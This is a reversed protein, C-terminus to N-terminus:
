NSSNAQFLVAGVTGVLVLALAADFATYSMLTVIDLGPIKLMMVAGAVGALGLSVALEIAVATRFVRGFGRQHIRWARMEGVLAVIGAAFVLGGIVPHHSDLWFRTPLVFAMLRPRVALTLAGVGTAAGALWPLVRLRRATEGLGWGLLFQGALVVVACALVILLAYVVPKLYAERWAGIMARSGSLGLLKYQPEMVPNAQADFPYKVVSAFFFYSSPHHCDTCGTAGLAAGAPYVDHNYKHVNGYPSAEWLRKEMVRYETGSTYIRDNMVWVVHKGDMPYGTQELMNTVEAILADIEQPRNVETVGDGNDDKLMALQPYNKPNKRHAAWMKYIDSMKPQMLGPQGEVEIAPWTTHTRNVPYIKGKYRALVPRFLDTPKDDLGMMVLQGFHNWYQMDPGYFTWLHKGKAPIKAGPNFVDSAQLRVAKVARQPVHCTQCAIKDLHFPPLWDHRAVPTGLRGTTHCSACDRVTNDLDDRVYGAPDDGKGIQHAEYGNIRPDSAHSGAPHCDICKLGARLHVDTRPRFNAGRNKWGRTAHCALCSENRPELVIHPSLTGDPNFKSADYNVKVPAGGKVSGTVAALGAGATAAWRFNLAKIQKNREGIDYEPMHCMLCDAEVVGTESWRAKYYDGDFNNDGGATLGNAPDAMCRDYRKGDRDLEAVGGGPHCTACGAAMFGFSTLDITKPSENKKPSLYRFLPGPTSWTGGYMGPSLVWRCRDAQDPTPDHGKGMTFHYGQTITEYDHCKGCTQKPSYPKDANAGHVPDIVNGEADLLHFAPCVGEASGRRVEGSFVQSAWGALLSLMVVGLTITSKSM